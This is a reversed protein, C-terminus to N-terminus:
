PLKSARNLKERSLMRETNKREKKIRTQKGWFKWKRPNKEQNKGKNKKKKKKRRM